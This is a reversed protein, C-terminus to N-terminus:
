KNEKRKFDGRKWAEVFKAWAIPNLLNNPVYQGAYYIQNTRQQMQLRFNMSGNMPMAEFRASLQEDSLNKRAIELDDDPIDLNLFATKFQEQTPWPYVVAEDLLITDSQLMQILSYRSDNLSDPVIFTSKKYGISSFTITDLPKAVFSFYGYYDSMTGRHTNKVIINAFPVPNLSDGTVIIGSFQILDQESSEDQSFANNCITMLILVLLSSLINKM